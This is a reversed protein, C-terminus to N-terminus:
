PPCHECREDACGLWFDSLIGAVLVVLFRWRDPAEKELFFFTYGGPDGCLGDAGIIATNWVALSQKWRPMTNLLVHPPELPSPQTLRRM